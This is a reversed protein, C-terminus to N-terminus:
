AEGEAFYYLPQNVPSGLNAEISLSGPSSFADQMVDVEYSREIPLQAGPSISLESPASYITENVFGRGDATCPTQDALWGPSQAFNLDGVWSPTSILNYSSMFPVSEEMTTPSPDHSNVNPENYQHSAHRPSIPPSPTLPQDWGNLAAAKRLESALIRERLTAIRDKIRRGSEISTLKARRHFCRSRFM